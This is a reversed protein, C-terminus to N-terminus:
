ILDFLISIGWIMGLPLFVSLTARLLNICYIKNILLVIFLYYLMFSADMVAQALKYVPNDTLEILNIVTLDELIFISVIVAIIQIIYFYSSILLMEKFMSHGGFLLATIHFVFITIIWTIIGSLFAIIYSTNVMYEFFIGLSVSPLISYIESLFETLLVSYIVIIAVGYWQPLRSLITIFKNM